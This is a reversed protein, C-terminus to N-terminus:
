CGPRRRREEPKDSALDSWRWCRERTIKWGPLRWLNPDTSDLLYGAQSSFMSCQSEELLTPTSSQPSQYLPACARQSTARKRCGRMSGSPRNERM